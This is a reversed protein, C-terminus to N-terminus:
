TKSRLKREVLAVVTKLSELNDPVVESDEVVIAFNDQLFVVLELVGTSDIVSHLLSEDDRLEENRGFLYNNVLFTRIEREIDATQM